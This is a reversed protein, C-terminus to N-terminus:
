RRLGSRWSSGGWLLSSSSRITIAELVWALSVVHLGGDAARPRVLAGDFADAVAAPGSARAAMSASTWSCGPAGASSSSARNGAKVEREARLRGFRGAACVRGAHRWRRAPPDSVSPERRSLPRLSRPLDRGTLDGKKRFFKSPHPLEPIAAAPLIIRARLHHHSAFVGFYRRMHFGPPPVLACPRASTSVSDATGGAV